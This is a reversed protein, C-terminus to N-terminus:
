LAYENGLEIQDDLYEATIEFVSGTFLDRYKKRFEKPLKIYADETMDNYNICNRMEELFKVPLKQKEIVNIWNISYKFERMFEYTLPLLFYGRRSLDERGRYFIERSEMDEKNEKDLKSLDWM